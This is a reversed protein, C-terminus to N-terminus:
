NLEAYNRRYSWRSQLLVLNHRSLGFVLFLWVGIGGLAIIHLVILVFSDEGTIANYLRHTFMATFLVFFVAAMVLHRALVPMFHQGKGRIGCQVRFIILNHIIPLCM